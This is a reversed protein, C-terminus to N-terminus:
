ATATLFNLSAWGSKGDPATVAAFGNSTQGSAEVTSLHPLWEVLNALTTDVVPTSRLALQGAPDPSSTTVAYTGAPITPALGPGPAPGPTPGPGPGPGPAPPNSAASATGAGVLVLLLVASGALLLKGNRSLNM